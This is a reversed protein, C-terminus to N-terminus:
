ETGAEQVIVIFVRAKDQGPRVFLLRNLTQDSLISGVPGLVFFQRERLEMEFRGVDFTKFKFPVKGTLLRLDAMGKEWFAPEVRVKLMTSDTPDPVASFIWGLYGAGVKAVGLSGHSMPFLLSQPEVSRSTIVEHAGSPMNVRGQFVREAGMETLAQAVESAKQTAATGVAFGNSDFATKDEYDIGWRVLLRFVRSLSDLSATDLEYTLVSFSLMTQTPFSEQTAQLDSLKIGELSTHDAIGGPQECGGAWLCILVCCVKWFYHNM